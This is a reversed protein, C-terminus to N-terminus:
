MEPFLVAAHLNFRRNEDAHSFNLFLDRQCQVVPTVTVTIRMLSQKPITHTTLTLIVEFSSIGSLVGTESSMKM